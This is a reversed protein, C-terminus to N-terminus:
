EEPLPPPVPGPAGPPPGWAGPGPGPGGAGPGPGGPGQGFREGRFGGGWGGPGGPGEGFPAGPMGGGFGGRQRARHVLRRLEGQFDSLFIYLKAQQATSLGQSLEEFSAGKQKAIQEDQAVLAKFKAAIEDEPANARISQRLDRALERREKAIAESEERFKEIRRTMLITQEDTLDLAKALRAIMVMQVLDRIDREDEPSPPLVPQDEEPGALPPGEMEEPAPPPPPPEQGCATWAWAVGCLLAIAILKTRM